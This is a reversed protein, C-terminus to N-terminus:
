IKISRSCLLHDLCLLCAPKALLYFGLYVTIIDRCSAGIYAHTSRVTVGDKFM